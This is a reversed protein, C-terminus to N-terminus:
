SYHTRQLINKSSFGREIYEYANDRHRNEM